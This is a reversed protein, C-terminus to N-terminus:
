RRDVASVEEVKNREWPIPVFGCLPLPFGVLGRKSVHDAPNAILDQRITGSNVYFRDAQNIQM